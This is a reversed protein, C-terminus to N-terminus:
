AILQQAFRSGAKGSRRAAVMFEVVLPLSTQACARGNVAIEGCKGRTQAIADSHFPDLAIGAFAYGFWLFAFAPYSEQCILFARAQQISTPWIRIEIKGDNQSQSGSCPLRLDHCQPPM